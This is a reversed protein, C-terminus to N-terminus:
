IHMGISLRYEQQLIRSLITCGQEAQRWRDVHMRNTHDGRVDPQAQEQM